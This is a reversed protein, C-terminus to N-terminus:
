NKRFNKGISPRVIAIRLQDQYQRMMDESIAKTFSYTNPWPAILKTTLAALEIKDLNLLQLTQHFDLPPEYFTEKIESRPCQSYATSIHVFSQLKLCKTATDLIHKTGRINIMIAKRLEEDFKVTAAGHVIVEVHSKIYERDENSIGLNEIEMDGNVLKLKNLFKKDFNEMEQFLFGSLIQRLREDNTKGKKPRSLLLIEKLNGMRML